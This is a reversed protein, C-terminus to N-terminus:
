AGTPIPCPQYGLETCIGALPLDWPDTPLRSLYGFEFVIGLTPVQRWDPQSLLRDYFGGGYGLRYGRHDIAIAPVLLLDVQAAQLQPLEPQPEAIGFPGLTLGDGWEPSWRHWCLNQGQCRPFGWIKGPLKFLPTLDPEQRSSFYALITGSQQFLASKKLQTCLRDSNVQWELVSLSQRQQLLLQRLQPKEQAVGNM